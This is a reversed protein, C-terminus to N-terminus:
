TKCLGQLNKVFDKSNIRDPSKERQTTSAGLNTLCSGRVSERQFWASPKAESSQHEIRRKATAAVGSVVLGSEQELGHAFLRTQNM